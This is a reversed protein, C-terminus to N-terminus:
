RRRTREQFFDISPSTADNGHFVHELDEQDFYEVGVELLRGNATFGVFMLRENGRESPTMERWVGTALVDDVDAKSIGHRDLSGVNYTTRTM